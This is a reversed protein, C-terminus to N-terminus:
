NTGIAPFLRVLAVGHRPIKAEFANERTGLDKQRWLDRTKHPGEIELQQWTAQLNAEVQGLNFLGVAKSGDEMDKALILSAEDRQIIQAQKGLPDQDIEIVEANCLINLTFDDLKEMDGSFILPAAMLCWMSMYSYQENPTLTTPTGEAQRRANGVWGILIYDPDNWQGPKAYQWHEANSLGIHYFGPLDTGGALGLDGTTRWCNGGVEGAWQWVDGMGYQCLNYVIDRDLTKLINGMKRYPLQLRELGEGTAVRTYSCWDYKLFDFEWAAFTEADIQEHQYTGAYRQCTTPGPSTYLGAKLGKSHIYDALNKMNPFYRNPRIAGSADRTDGGIMPDPSGAKVMWCDDINVYQYGFDAMGSDIMADAAARMVKDTVRNYHIYWSNWGMPPTLALTDGVVIRFPRRASGHSNEASLTIDYSGKREPVAGTIIGRARSLKLGEPLNKASFEIPREGTCPIRYIFPRGPRAGYVKPGNVRPKLDPKPTLIVAPEKPPGSAQPDAGAVEFKAEAWNAHDYSINDGAGDVALILMQVNALDVEVKKAPEGAKMVGSDFLKEGDGYIRFRVSGINGNVEDDVGIYASFKRACGKLDIYMVSSAHTGVGREFKRGGITLPKNQISRDKQPSGWGATMKTLDLSALWVTRPQTVDEETRAPASMAFIMCILLAITVIVTKRYTTNM